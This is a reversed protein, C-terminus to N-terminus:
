FGLRKALKKAASKGDDVANNAAATADKLAKKAEALGRGLLITNLALPGLAMVQKKESCSLGHWQKETVGYAKGKAGAKAKREAAQKPTEDAPPPADKMLEGTTEEFWTDAPECRARKPKAPAPPKPTANVAATQAPTLVPSRSLYYGGGLVSAGIVITVPEPM